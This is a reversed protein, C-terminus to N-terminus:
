NYEFVFGVGPFDKINSLKYGSSELYNKTLDMPDTLGTLYQFLYIKEKGVLFKALNDLDNPKLNFKPAIGIAEIKGKEYWLYPAFPEPFVFIVLTKDSVGYKEVYSVAQRWQERQVYPNTYYDILGGISTIIILIIAIIFWIRKIQFIGYAIILLFFPLLFILRQPAIIPIIFSTIFATFFPIFFLILMRLEKRKKYSIWVSSIFILFVPMLILGYVLLNDITGKGFIFKAFTLPIAKLPVVSVINTWGYFSGGTGQKLQKIFQPLWPLFCIGAAFLSLLINRFYKKEFFVIYSLHGLLLFPTFYLSYLCFVVLLSYLFWKKRLLMLTSFLSLFVFLMYPRAEQSYWIHYPSLALFLASLIGVKEKGFYSGIKYILYICGTGLLVSLSRIWIESNGLYMWFHLIIHYLPPHFDSTIQFQKSFSRSSEIVQAAEDLWFSQNLNVLRLIFGIIITFTIILNKKRM